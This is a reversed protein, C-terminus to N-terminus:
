RPISSIENIRNMIERATTPLKARELPNIHVVLVDATADMFSRFSRRIAWTGATGTISAM